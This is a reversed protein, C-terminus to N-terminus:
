PSIMLKFSSFSQIAPRFDASIKSQTVMGDLQQEVPHAALERGAYGTGATHSQAAHGAFGAAFRRVEVPLTSSNM